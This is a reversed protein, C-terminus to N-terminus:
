PHAHVVGADVGRESADDEPKGQGGLGVDLEALEARPEAAAGLHEFVAVVVVTVDKALVGESLAGKADLADDVVDRRRQLAHLM